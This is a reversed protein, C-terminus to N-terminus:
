LLLIYNHMQRAITIQLQFNQQQVLVLQISLCKSIGVSTVHRLKGPRLKRIERALVSAPSTSPWPAPSTPSLRSHPLCVALQLACWSIWIWICKNRLIVYKEVHIFVNANFYNNFIIWTEEEYSNTHLNKNLGNCHHWLSRSPMEFWWSWSQKSLRKNLACILSFMLSRTLPRQSPFEGTVPLNGVCLALLSSFIEMQHRWWPLSGSDYPSSFPLPTVTDM